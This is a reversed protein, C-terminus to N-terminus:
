VVSCVRERCSARGIEGRCEPAGEGRAFRQCFQEGTQAVLGSGALLKALAEGPTFTGRLAPAHKGRVSAADFSLQQHSARAFAKLAAGLTQAPIDFQVTAVQAYAPVAQAFLALAALATGLKLESGTARQM